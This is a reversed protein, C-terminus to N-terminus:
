IKVFRATQLRTGDARLLTICYVGPTYDALELTTQFSTQAVTRGLADCVLVQTPTEGLGQYQLTLRESAPNPFVSLTPTAPDLVLTPESFFQSGDGQLQVNTTLSMVSSYDSCNAKVRWQYHTNPQLGSIVVNTVNVGGLTFWNQGSALKIQLTYSSAGTISNWSIAAFTGGIQNNKLLTPANCSNGGGGNPTSFQATYSWTSCNAKVQWHYTKAATLNNLLLTNATTSGAQIWNSSTSLKYQISYNTANAVSNWVLTAGNATLNVAFLNAPALCINGGGGGGNNATSFQAMASYNSCDTKVQWHYSSNASLNNLTLTPATSNGANTWNVAAVLKFQISYQTAGPVPAWSLTASTNSIASTQLANPSTGSQPLCSGNLVKDRIRAGPTPGFGHNFNIGNGTLHCYSMITGGNQPSPGPSCSGEPSVCNDLAGNPWNCSHTHWSGLNHGLEHTVVEVSWSYTPVNQYSNQIASVGFAFSKFCVVDVYAIGGGLNRTSLLHALNGNFNTGRTQRFANLVASTNSYGSYPDPTTWVFIQSIAVGVNENAYLTAVQNFLGTVYNSLQAMNAGKDTFFKYDCEFYVQVVKCGVGRENSSPEGGEDGQLSEEESFCRHPSPAKLQQTKYFIYQESGDEMKGWEFNGREDAMMGMIGSPSISLSAISNSNGRVTGRYHLASQYPNSVETPSSLLFDPSLIEVQILELELDGDATPIVFRLAQPATQLLSALAEQPLSLLTAGEVIPTLDSREQSKQFVSVAQFDAYTRANELWQAVPKLSQQAKITPLFLLGALLCIWVAMLRTPVILRNTHM